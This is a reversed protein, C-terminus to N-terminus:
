NKENDQTPATNTSKKSSRARLQLTQLHLSARVLLEQDEERIRVYILSVAYGSQLPECKIVEGYCFIGAAEEALFVKLEAIKGIGVPDQSFLTLGGGGFEITSFRFMEDDQQQLIFSMMLDIKRSQLNLFDVLEQAHDGLNRLPRLAKTEIESMQAAIKFAYPMNNTLEDENPVIFQSGLLKMNVSLSHKISFFEHFQALKNELGPSNTNNPVM